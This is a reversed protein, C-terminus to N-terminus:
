TSVDLDALWSSFGPGDPLQEDPVGDFFLALSFQGSSFCRSFANDSVMQFPLVLCVIVQLNTTM